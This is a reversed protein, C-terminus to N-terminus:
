DEGRRFLFLVRYSFESCCAINYWVPFTWLYCVPCRDFFSWYRIEAAKVVNEAAWSHSNNKIWEIWQEESYEQTALILYKQIIRESNYSNIEKLINIESLSHHKLSRPHRFIEIFFSFCRVSVHELVALTRSAWCHSLCSVAVPRCVFSSSCRVIRVWHPTAHFHGPIVRYEM